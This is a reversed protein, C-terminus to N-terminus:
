RSFIESSLVNKFYQFTLSDNALAASKELLGLKKNVREILKFIFGIFIAFQM